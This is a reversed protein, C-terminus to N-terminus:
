ETVEFINIGCIFGSMSYDYEIRVKPTSSVFIFGVNENIMRTKFEEDGSEKKENLM